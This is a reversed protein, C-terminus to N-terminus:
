TNALRTMEFARIALLKLKAVAVDEPGYVSGVALLDAQRLRENPAYAGDMPPAEPPHWAAPDIRGPVLALGALGLAAALLLLLIARGM